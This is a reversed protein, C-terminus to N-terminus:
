QHWFRQIRHDNWRQQKFFRGGSRHNPFGAREKAQQDNSNGNFPTDVACPSRLGKRPYPPLPPFPKFPISPAIKLSLDFPNNCKTLYTEQNEMLTMPIGYSVALHPLYREQPHGIVTIEGDIDTSTSAVPTVEEKCPSGFGPPMEDDDDVNLAIVESSATNGEGQISLSNQKMGDIDPIPELQSPRMLKICGNNCLMSQESLFESAQENADLSQDWRSKRKRSNTIVVSSCDTLSASSSAPLSLSGGSIDAEFSPQCNSASIKDHDQWSNFKSAQCWNPRSYNSCSQRGDRDSPEVRLVNRPIWKDAFKRAIHHVQTDRHKMLKIMSDKFSEMGSCPPHAYIHDKTLIDNEALFELVKLLKRLIPIRSFNDRNQKMMNHLMQLGNKNIIDALVSRSKTKLIADLILSLDRASQSVSGKTEDGAAATVVLLKLYGKAADKKGYIGGNEDLLENLKEEVGEIHRSSIAMSVKKAKGSAIGKTSVGSRKVKIRRLTKVVNVKLATLIEVTPSTASNRGHVSSGSNQFPIQTTDDQAPGHVGLDTQMLNDELIESLQVPLLSRYVTCLPPIENGNEYSTQDPKTSCLGRNVEEFPQIDSIKCVNSGFEVCSSQIPSNMQNPESPLQHIAAQSNLGHDKICAGQDPMSPSDNKDNRELSSIEQCVVKANTAVCDIGTVVPEIGRDEIMLPEVDDTESDDQIVVESSSPDGGIYGRCESSGCVCKKAAAGFVRVYNYDFTIEEGKKIDRIAFLGICVEGNVMWKETRCNPDCSHNIFRGLNGKDCADIVEGGNLTMFYFHKQGRGAYNRLRAEYTALDLVEGVYEILFEGRSACEELQLGFGKKGYKLWKLKAYKRKQFQQNSCLTGCPCTGKVCEINLMRNLCEEGCGLGGDSPPKCHCVMIEDITQTRRNRHLFLNSKIRTWTTQTSASLRPPMLEGYNHLASSGYQEDSIGLDNNIEEDTKEQPITCDAFRDDVNDKCTWREKEIVHVLEDPVCRWKQCDDCLAWAKKGLVSSQGVIINYPERASDSFVPTAIDDIPDKQLADVAIVEGELQSANNTAGLSIGLNDNGSTIVNVNSFKDSKLMNEKQHCYIFKRRHWKSDARKSKSKHLKQKTGIHIQCEKGNGSPLIEELQESGENLLPLNSTETRNQIKLRHKHKDLVSLDPVSSNILSWETKSGTKHHDRSVKSCKNGKDCGGKGKLCNLSAKKVDYSKAQCDLREESPPDSLLFPCESIQGLKKGIMERKSKNEIKGKKEKKEKKENMKKKVKHSRRINKRLCDGVQMEKTLVPACATVLENCNSEASLFCNEKKSEQNKNNRKLAFQRKIFSSGEFTMAGVDVLPNYVDSDPSNGPDLAFKDDFTEAVFELDALSSVGHCETLLNDPSTEQTLTSELDKEGQHRERMNPRVVAYWSESLNQDLEVRVSSTGSAINFDFTPTFSEIGNETSPQAGLISPQISWSFLPFKDSSIPAHEDKVATTKRRSVGRGEKKPRSKRATYQVSDHKILENREKIISFLSEGTGWVSLRAKRRSNRAKRKVRSDGTFITCIKPTCSASPGFKRKCKRRDSQIKMLPKFNVDALNSRLSAGRKPNSRRISTLSSSNAIFVPANDEEICCDNYINCHASTKKFSDFIDGKFDFESSSIKEAKSRGGASFFTSEVTSGQGSCSAEHDVLSAGVLEEKVKQLSTGNQTGFPQENDKKKDDLNNLNVCRNDINSKYFDINCLSRVRGEMSSGNSFLSAVNCEGPLHPCYFGDGGKALDGDVGVKSSIMFSDYGNCNRGVNFLGPIYEEKTGIGLEGRLLSLEPFEVEEAPVVYAEEAVNWHEEKVSVEKDEVLKVLEIANSIEERDELDKGVMGSFENVYDGCIFSSPMRLEVATQTIYDKLFSKSGMLSCDNDSDPLAIRGKSDWGGM